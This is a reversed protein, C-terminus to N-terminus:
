LIQGTDYKGLSEALAQVMEGVTCYAKAGEILAPMVNEQAAAATTIRQLALKAVATNRNSKVTKLSRVVEDEVDQGIKLLDIQGGVDETYDTVGVLKKDGREVAQNYQYAADAIERRVYGTEIAKIM